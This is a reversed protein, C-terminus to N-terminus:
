HNILTNFFFTHFYRYNSTYDNLSLNFVFDGIANEICCILRQTISWGQIGFHDTGFRTGIVIDAQTKQQENRRVHDTLNANLVVIYDGTAKGLGDMYASLLGLKAKRAVILIHDRGYISQLKQAVQLSGDSSNDEVIVLEYNVGREVCTQHVFWVVLPLSERENWTPVLITYKTM